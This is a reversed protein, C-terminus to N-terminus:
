KLDNRNKKRAEREADSYVRKRLQQNVQLMILSTRVGKAWSCRAINVHTYTLIYGTQKGLIRGLSQQMRVCAQRQM